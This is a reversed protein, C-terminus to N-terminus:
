RSVDVVVRGRVKGEFIRSVVAPVDALGVVQTARALKNLDLDKALRSWAEIRTERPANVSDIGALTVNRLIFPLESAPRRDADRRASWTGNFDHSGAGAFARRPRAVLLLDYGRQALRDAYVAGIGSSAGTVVAIKRSSTSM